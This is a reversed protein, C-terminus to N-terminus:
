SNKTRLTELLAESLLRLELDIGDLANDSLEDEPKSFEEYYRKKLKLINDEYKHKEEVGLNALKLLQELVALLQTAM